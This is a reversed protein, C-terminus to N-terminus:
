DGAGVPLRSINPAAADGGLRVRWVRQREPINKLTQEGMDDYALDLKGRVQNYAGDSLTVGGPEAIEQLRAAINVGNGFIGDGDVMIDGFNVGIRYRIQGDEPVGSNREVMAEQIEVASRVADVVSAYEVLAGDGMLKVLRGNNAAINPSVLEAQHAKLCALTGAEDAAMLRSYGVVDSSVIAALRREM